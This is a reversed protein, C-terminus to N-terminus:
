GEGRVILAKLQGIRNARAEDYGAYDDLEELAALLEGYADATAKEAREARTKNYEWWRVANEYRAAIDAYNKDAASL